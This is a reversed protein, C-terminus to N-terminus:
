ILKELPVNLARAIAQGTKESCSRGAKVGSITARSIGTISAIDRILMDKRTMESVLKVRDIRM